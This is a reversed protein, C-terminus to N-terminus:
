TQQFFYPKEKLISNSNSIDQEIHYQVTFALSRITRYTCYPPSIARPELSIAGYNPGNDFPMKGLLLSSYALITWADSGYEIYCLTGKRELFAFYCKRELKPFKLRVPPWFLYVFDSCISVWNQIPDIQQIFARQWDIQPCNAKWNVLINARGIVALTPVQKTVM